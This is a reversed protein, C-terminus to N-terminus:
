SEGSSGVAPRFAQRRWRSNMSINGLPFHISLLAFRCSFFASVRLFLAQHHHSAHAPSDHRSPVCPTARESDAPNGVAPPSHLTCCALCGCRMVEHNGPSLSSGEGPLSRFNTGSNKCVAPEPVFLKNKQSTSVGFLMFAAISDFVSSARTVNRLRDCKPGSQGRFHRSFACAQRRVLALPHADFRSLGCPPRIRFRQRKRSTEGSNAPHMILASPARTLGGGGAMWPEFSACPFGSDTGPAPMPTPEPLGLGTPGPPM